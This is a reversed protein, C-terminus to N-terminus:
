LFGVAATQTNEASREERIKLDSFDAPLRGNVNTPKLNPGLHGFGVKM